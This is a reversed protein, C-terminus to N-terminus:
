LGCAGETEVLRLIVDSFSEGPGRLSRLRDVMARELWIWREGRENADNEYEVSGLPLTACIADYAAQTIAIRIMVSGQATPEILGAIVRYSRGL